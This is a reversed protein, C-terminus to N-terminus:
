DDRYTREDADPDRAVHQGPVREQLPQRAGAGGKAVLMEKTRAAVEEELHQGHARLTRDQAEIRGLMGNFDDVLRGLEDDSHKDARAAYNRGTSVSRAVQALELIPRSILRQLRSSLLLATLSSVFMVIALVIAYTRLRAELEILDTQVCIAGIREGALVVPRTVTFVRRAVHTGVDANCALTDKGLARWTAFSEGAAGYVVAGVISRKARLSQLIRWASGEDAFTLAATSNDGVIDAMLSVEDVLRQRFTIYDYAVFLACAVVLSAGSALMTVLILKGRIALTRPFRNM